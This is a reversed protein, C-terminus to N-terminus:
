PRVAHVRIRGSRSGGRLAEGEGGRRGGRPRALAARCRQWPRGPVTFALKKRSGATHAEIRFPAREGDEYPALPKAVHTRLGASVATDVVLRGHSSVASGPEANVQQVSKPLVPRGAPAGTLYLRGATGVALGVTGLGGRALETVKAVAVRKVSVQEDHRELFVVWGDADPHVHFAPGSTRALLESRGDPLVRSLQNGIAAVIGDKGPVASTAQGVVTVESTIKGAAADLSLLRTEGTEQDAAQTLVATEGTGCGPDFYALSVQRDLKTVKRTELDVVAAFAGRDFLM